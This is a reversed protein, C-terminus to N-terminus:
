RPDGKRITSAPPFLRLIEKIIALSYELKNLLHPDANIAEAAKNVDSGFVEDHEKCVTDLVDPHKSLMHLMYAITSSTTDHGAFIFTKIQDIAYTKFLPDMKRPKKGSQSLQQQEEAIYTELALDIVHKNKSTKSVSPDYAALRNELVEGIYRDMKRRNIWLQVPRWPNFRTFPNFDQDNWLWQIQSRFADVLPNRERQANLQVGSKIM